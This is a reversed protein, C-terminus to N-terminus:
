KNIASLKNLVASIQARDIIENRGLAALEELFRAEAAGSADLEGSSVNALHWAVTAFVSKPIANYAEGWHDRAHQDNKTTGIKGM